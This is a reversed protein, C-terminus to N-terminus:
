EIAESPRGANSLEVALNRHALYSDPNTRLTEEYVDIASAYLKSQRHTLLMLTAVVVGAAAIPEWLRSAHVGCAWYGWAGAVLTIPGLAALHQYHDAVLSFKMYGVDTFGMVPVLAVCFWLWALLIPRVWPRRRQWWLAITVAISACLPLWWSW